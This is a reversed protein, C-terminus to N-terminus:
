QKKQLMVEIVKLGGGASSPKIERGRPRNYNEAPYGTAQGLSAAIGGNPAAPYNMAPMMAKSDIPVANMRCNSDPSLSISRRLFIDASRSANFKLPSLDL